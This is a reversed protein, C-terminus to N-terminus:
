REEYGSLARLKALWGPCEEPVAVASYDYKGPGAYRFAALQDSSAIWWLLRVGLGAEVAAFTTVDERSPLPSGAGPHTHAVGLLTARHTWLVEWLDGSDPLSGGTRGAPTHWHLAHGQDDIVVATELM